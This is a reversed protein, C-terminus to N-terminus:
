DISRINIKTRSGSLPSDQILLGVYELLKPNRKYSQFSTPSKTGVQETGYEPEGDKGEEALGEAFVEWDETARKAGFFVGNDLCGSSSSSAEATDEDRCNRGHVLHFEEFIGLLIEGTEEGERNDRGVISQEKSSRTHGGCRAGSTEVATASRVLTRFNKMIWTARSNFSMNGVAVAVAMVMEEICEIPPLPPSFEM